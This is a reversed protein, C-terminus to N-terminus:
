ASFEKDLNYGAMLLGISETDLESTRYIGMFKGRYMVAIRDSLAFIESLETSVLVICKGKAKEELITTHINDTAGIDLGRTPQNLILLKDGCRIERALVIKQQNGGSLNRALADAGPAKVDYDQIVQETYHHLHSLNLLGRKTWTDEYSDKLMMNEALNMDMVMADRYRDVPVYGIGKAIHERVDLKSINEGDLVICGSTAQRAGYLLECLQEQGNGSVGAIGFIEGKSVSFNLNDVLPNESKENLTLNEVELIVKGKQKSSEPIVIDVEKQHHDERGMMLRSLEVENTDACLLNGTVEGNRMVIIRDAAVMVEKLKHTILIVANGREAYNCIFEMLADAEQPTLVATPEDMILLNAKRFLAKLIEVKQQSGVDLDSIKANLPVSFGYEDSLKQVEQQAKKYDVVGRVDGLIINELVTHAPVLSFHQQIMAIGLNMSDKTSSIKQEVGDRMIRGEDARYLGYLIKMITSKGAGNEGLLALVEGRNISFSVDKNAIVRAFYKSIGQLEFYPNERM